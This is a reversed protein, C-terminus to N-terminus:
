RSRQGITSVGWLEAIRGEAIRVIELLTGSATDPDDHALGYITSRLAVRDGDVLVDEIVSRAAPHAAMFATWSSKVADVGGRLPHSYFDPAFIEEAVTVDRTTLVDHMRRVLTRPDTM